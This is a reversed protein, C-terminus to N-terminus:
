LRWSHSFDKMFRDTMIVDDITFSFIYNNQIGEIVIPIQLQMNGLTKQKTDSYLKKVKNKKIGIYLLRDMRYTRGDEEDDDEIHISLEPILYDIYKTNRLISTPVQPDKASGFPIGNHIVRGAYYNRGVFVIDDWNIKISHSTKNQIDFLIGWRNLVFAINIISDSYYFVPKTPTYVNGLKEAQESEKIDDIDVIYNGEDITFTSIDKYPEHKNTPSEVTFSTKYGILQYTSRCSTLTITLIGLLLVNIKRM